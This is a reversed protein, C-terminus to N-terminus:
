DAPENPMGLDAPRTGRTRSIAPPHWTYGARTNCLASPDFSRTTATM